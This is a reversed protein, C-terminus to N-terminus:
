LTNADMRISYLNTNNLKQVLAEPEFEIIYAKIHFCKSIIALQRPAEATASCLPCHCGVGTSKGPIDWPHLLRAPQLGHPRLSKSVISHSLVCIESLMIEELNKWTTAHSKLASYHDMTHFYCMKRIWETRPTRKLQKQEKAITFLMAIFMPTCIDTCSEAKLEKPNTTNKKFLQISKQLRVIGSKYSSHKHGCSFTSYCAYHNM